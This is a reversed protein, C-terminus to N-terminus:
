AARQMVWLVGGGVILSLGGASAVFWVFLKRGTEFGNVIKELEQRKKSEDAVALEMKEIKAFARELAARGEQQHVELQILRIM